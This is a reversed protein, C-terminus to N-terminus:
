NLLAADKAASAADGTLGLLAKMERADQISDAPRDLRVVGIPMCESEPVKFHGYREWTTFAASFGIWEKQDVNAVVLLRTRTNQMFSTRVRPGDVSQGFKTISDLGIADVYVREEYPAGEPDLVAFELCASDTRPRDFNWWGMEPADFIRYFIDGRLDFNGAAQQAFIEPGVLGGGDRTAESDEGSAARPPKIERWAGNADLHYVGFPGRDRSRAIMGAKLAVGERLRLERGSCDAQVHLMGASELLAPPGQAESEAANDPRYEMGIGVAALAFSDQVDTLQFRVGGPDCDEPLVFANPPIEVFSRDGVGFIQAGERVDIFFGRGEPALRRYFEPSGEISPSLQESDEGSEARGKPADQLAGASCSAFALIFPMALTLAPLRRISPLSRM